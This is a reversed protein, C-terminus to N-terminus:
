KEVPNSKDLVWHNYGGDLVKVNKFGAIEHLAYYGVAALVGSNCYFVVETDISLGALAPLSTIQTASLFNGKADLLDKYNLLIAGPLHGLSKGDSGNFEEPKRTDILKPKVALSKYDEISIGMTTNLALNFNVATRKAPQSTLPIRYKGWEAMDKTTISVDKAGLMTLVFWIRSTYKNSGDDYIVVSTSESIGKAGFLKALEEPSKLIGDPKGAFLDQQWINIAGKVHETAYDTTRQADIIVVDPKGKIIDAFEKATIIGGAYSVMGAFLMIISLLGKRMTM